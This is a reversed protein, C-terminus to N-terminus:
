GPAVRPTVDVRARAAALEDATAVEPGVIPTGDEGFFPHPRHRGRLYAGALLGISRFVVSLQSGRGANPPLATQGPPANVTARSPGIREDRADDDLDVCITAVGIFPVRRSSMTNGIPTDCCRANWRFLGKGTLRTCRLADHGAEIRVQAPAVQIIDTGGYPDLIDDARGLLHAYTRCDLCLCSLRLGGRGHDVGELAGRLRGCTCRIPTTTVLHPSEEDPAPPRRGYHGRPRRLFVATTTSTQAGFRADISM